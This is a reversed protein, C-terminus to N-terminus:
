IGSTMIGSVKPGLFIQAPLFNLAVHGIDLSTTIGSVEPSLFIQAPLFNLAVHGIDM